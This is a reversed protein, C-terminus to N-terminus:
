LTYESAVQQCYVSNIDIELHKAIREVEQSVNDVVNEYKCVLVKPLSTWQKYNDLCTEILGLEWIENFSKLKQKMYSIYVDRNDRFIYVGKANNNYFEASIPESCIHVKCVKLGNSNGYKDRVESFRKWDIWGISQGIGWSHSKQVFRQCGKRYM